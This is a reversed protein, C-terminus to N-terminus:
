KVVQLIWHLECNRDGREEKIIINFRAQSYYNYIHGPVFCAFAELEWVSMHTPDSYANKDNWNPCMIEITAGCKAVRWLEVILPLKEEFTVHEIIHSALIFDFENEPFPLPHRVNVVLDVGPLGVLDVNVWDDVGRRIDKGCGLNLKRM